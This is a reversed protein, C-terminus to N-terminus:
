FFLAICIENKLGGKKQIAYPIGELMDLLFALFRFHHVAGPLWLWVTLSEGGGTATLDYLSGLLKVVCFPAFFQYM